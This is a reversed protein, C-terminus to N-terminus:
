QEYQNPTFCKGFTRTRPFASNPQTPYEFSNRSKYFQLPIWRLISLLVASTKQCRGKCKHYQQVKLVMADQRHLVIKKQQGTDKCKRYQQVAPVLTAKRSQLGM